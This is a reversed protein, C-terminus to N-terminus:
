QPSVKLFPRIMDLTGPGIGNVDTLDDITEFRKRARYAIIRAAKVPGIGPLLELSDAPATNPDVQFRGALQDTETADETRVPEPAGTLIALPPAQPPPALYIRATLWGATILAVASFAALFWLQRHSFEFHRNLSM